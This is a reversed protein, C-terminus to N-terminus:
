PMALKSQKASWDRSSGRNTLDEEVEKVRAVRMVQEVPTPLVGLVAAERLAREAEKRIRALQVPTLSSDDPRKM